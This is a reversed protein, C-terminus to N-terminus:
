EDRVVQLSAHANIAELLKAIIILWNTPDTTAEIILLMTRNYPVRLEHPLVQQIFYTARPEYFIPESTV